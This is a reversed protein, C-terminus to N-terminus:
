ADRSAPGSATVPFCRPAVFGDRAFAAGVAAAVEDETGASVLALASGGFGGGTMGAGLAGASSAAECAM